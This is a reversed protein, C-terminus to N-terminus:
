HLFIIKQEYIMNLFISRQHLWKHLFTNTEQLYVSHTEPLFPNPRYPYTQQSVVLGRDFCSSILFHPIKTIFHILTDLFDVVFICNLTTQSVDLGRDIWLMHLNHLLLYFYKFIYNWVNLISCNHRNDNLGNLVMLPVIFHMIKIFIHLKSSFTPM